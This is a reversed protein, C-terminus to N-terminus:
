IRLGTFVEGDRVSYGVALALGQMLGGGIDRTLHFNMTRTHADLRQLAAADFEFFSGAIPALCKYISEKASFVATVLESATLVSEDSDQRVHSQESFVRPAVNAATEPAMIPEIDIGLGRAMAATAVVAAATFASHAISGVVHSPWVASRDDASDLPVAPLAASGDILQIAHAACLRGALFSRVRAPVARQLRDPVAFRNEVVTVAADALTEANLSVVFASGLLAFLEPIPEVAFQHLANKTM